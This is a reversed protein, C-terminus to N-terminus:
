ETARTFRDTSEACVYEPLRGLDIKISDLFHDLLGDLQNSVQAVSSWSFTLVVVMVRSLASMFTCALGRSQLECQTRNWCCGFPNQITSFVVGTTLRERYGSHVPGGRSDKPLSRSKM